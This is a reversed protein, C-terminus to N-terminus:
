FRVRKAPSRNPKPRCRFRAASPPSIRAAAKSGCNIFCFRDIAKAVGDRDNSDTIYDAAALLISDANAMAVGIGSAEIMSLDNSGDGFAMSESVEMGLHTCLFRLAQGKNANKANIEINNALSSTVALEPFLKPLRELEEVRRDPDKFFM